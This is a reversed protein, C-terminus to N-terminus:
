RAVEVGNDHAMVVLDDFAKALTRRASEFAQLQTAGLGICFSEPQLLPDGEQLAVWVSWEGAGDQLLTIIM